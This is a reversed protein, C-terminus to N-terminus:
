HDAFKNGADEAAGGRAAVALGAHNGVGLVADDAFRDAAAAPTRHLGQLLVAVLGEDDAAGHAVQQGADLGLVEVYRGVGCGLLYALAETARANDAPAKLDHVHHHALLGDFHGGESTMVALLFSMARLGVLLPAHQAVVDEARLLFVGRPAVERDVGQVVVRYRLRHDIVVLSEGIEAVLGQAHDATRGRAVAFVRHAHQAGHAERGLEVESNGGVRLLGDAFQGAQDFVHRGRAQEVFHELQEGRAMGQFAQLPQAGLAQM